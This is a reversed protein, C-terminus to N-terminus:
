RRHKLENKAQQLLEPQYFLDVATNALAEIATVLLQHGLKSGVAAVFDKTHPVCIRNTNLSLYPHISPVVQSVNGMDISGGSVRQCMIDTVGAEALNQQFIKAITKNTIMEDYSLEYNHWNVKCGTQIAAGRACDLVKNVVKDLKERSNARIYFRAISKEPIINPTTGGELIIGHIKVDEELAHRISNVGNFLQIVGELANIGTNPIAAAHAAKGEYIFEIADIALSSVDIANADGPHFMLAADINNFYKEEVLTVKGGSTEEAPTGFVVVEGYLRNQELLKKVLVAAGVSAAGILNHGCGHGLYPLADYEALFALQPRRSNSFSAKFATKLGAIGREVKFQNNELYLTLLSSAFFEQHGLEPKEFIRQALQIFESKQHKLSVAIEKKLSNITEAM